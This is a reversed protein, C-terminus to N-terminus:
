RAWPFIGKRHSRTKRGVGDGKSGDLQLLLSQIVAEKAVNDRMNSKKEKILDRIKLFAFKEVESLGSVDRDIDSKSQYSLEVSVEGHLLSFIPQMEKTWESGGSWLTRGQRFFASNKEQLDAFPNRFERRLSIGIMGAVISLVEESPNVIDNFSFYETDARGRWNRYHDSWGGYYDDGLIIDLLSRKSEPHFSRHYKLYSDISARGDRHIYIAPADDIPPLHTKILFLESSTTAHQYFRPWDTSIRVDGVAEAVEGGLGASDPPEEDSYSNQDFCQKIITRMLTNGSRPYSALWIIM